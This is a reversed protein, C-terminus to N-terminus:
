GLTIQPTSKTLVGIQAADFGLGQLDSLLEEAKAAPVAALLGGATQPDFLLDARPGTAGTVKGLLAARNQPYLTSRIGQQALDLAGQLVPIAALDIEAGCNSAKCINWLHGALGFGTVDTMATAHPALCASAAAQSKSMESWCAAVDEGRAQLAMEAALITGSGIGRTLILANGGQAGALTIAPNELLGTITFGLTLEDGMTTHGGVIEAGEETFVQAAEEMIEQLWVSQKDSAMRPLIINALVAQPKAGMAWIDGLAHLATIRAMLAPDNAFARLHDTTLIQTAGGTQLIAADDGLTSLVDSRSHPLKAVTASLADAGLKAGCGGCMPKPGIAEAVGLATDDPLPPQQMAPLQGLKDMFSQDIRDKWRWLAPGSISFGAKEALASKRGLSVLKLFSKQPRFARPPTGILEARLNHTLITAARVAFVGAKPRPAHSLHACDGTAFVASDTVSRLQEDVTIFGDTLHLGTRALWDHPRAGAAGITFNSAIKEGTDLLVADAEVAVIGVNERITVHNESLAQRLARRVSAPLGKLIEGRDLLTVQADRGLVAMKYAAAMALEVGGIGGGIVAIQPSTAQVCFREWADAFKDLPKAAIGHEPFGPLKPMDSTIGIDISVLDYPIPARGKLTITKADMELGIARDLIIRAGAFRALRILDINLAERPYHGAIHGPLMGTYPATPGPNVLTLRAGTVPKMGWAKLVLAHSHGGGILVVDKVFPIPPQQM